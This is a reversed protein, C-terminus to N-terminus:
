PFTSKSHNAHHTQYFSDMAYDELNISSIPPFSPFTGTDVKKNLLPKFHKKEERKNKKLDIIENILQKIMQQMIDMNTLEKDEKESKTKSMGKNKKGNRESTSTMNEENSLHSSISALDNEM